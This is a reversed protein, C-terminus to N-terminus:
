KLSFADPFGPLLSSGSPLTLGEQVVHLFCSAQTSALTLIVVLPSALPFPAQRSLFCNFIEDTHCKKSSVLNTVEDTVQTLFLPTNLLLM